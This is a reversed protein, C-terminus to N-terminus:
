VGTVVSQFQQQEGKLPSCQSFDSVPQPVLMAAVRQNQNTLSVYHFHGCFIIFLFSTLFSRHKLEREQKNCVNETNQLKKDPYANSLAECVTETNRLLL